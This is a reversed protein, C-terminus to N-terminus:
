RMDRIIEVPKKLLFGSKKRFSLSKDIEGILKKLLVSVFFQNYKNGITTM